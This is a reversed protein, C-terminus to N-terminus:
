LENPRLFAASEIVFKNSNKQTTIRVTVVWVSAPNTTVAGDSDKCSITLGGSSKLDDLLIDSNRKLSTGEQTFVITNNDLDRISIGSGALANVREARRIERVMRNLAARSGSAMKKQNNIFIWSGFSARLYSAVPLAIIGIIVVVMISEILTFGKRCPFFNKKM